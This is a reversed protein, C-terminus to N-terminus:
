FTLIFFISLILLYAGTFKTFGAFETFYAPPDREKVYQNVRLQSNM